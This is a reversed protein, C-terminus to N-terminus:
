ATKYSKLRWEGPRSMDTLLIESESYFKASNLISLPEKDLNDSFIISKMSNLWLKKLIRRAKIM